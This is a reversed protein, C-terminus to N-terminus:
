VAVEEVEEYGEAIKLGRWERKGLSGERLKM